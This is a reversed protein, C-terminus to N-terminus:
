LKWIYAVTLDCHIKDFARVSASQSLDTSNLRKTKSLDVVCFDM